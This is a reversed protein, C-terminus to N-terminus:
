YIVSALGKQCGDYKLNKAITFAKDGLLKDFATRRTFDKFDRYAM